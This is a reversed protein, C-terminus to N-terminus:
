IIVVMGNRQEGEHDFKFIQRCINGVGWKYDSNVGTFNPRESGMLGSFRSM